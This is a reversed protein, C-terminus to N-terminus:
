PRGSGAGALRPGPLRASALRGRSPRPRAAWAGIRGPAGGVVDQARDRVAVGVGVQQKGGQEGLAAQGAAVRGEGGLQGVARQAAAAGVVGDQGCAAVPVFEVRRHAVHEPEARVLQQGGPDAAVGGHRGRDVQGLVDAAGARGAEDVGDQAPHGGAVQVGPDLDDRRVPRPVRGSVQRHPVAIRAPDDVREAVREARGAGGLGLVGEGGAVDPGLYDERETGGRVAERRGRIRDAAPRVAFPGAPRGVAVPQGPTVRRGEDGAALRDDLVLGALQGREGQGPDAQVGHVGQVGQVGHVPSSRSQSSRHAPGPPLARSSLPRAAARPARKTAESM